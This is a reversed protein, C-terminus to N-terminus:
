PQIRTLKVWIRLAPELRVVCFVNYIYLYALGKYEAYAINRNIFDRTLNSFIIWLHSQRLKFAYKVFKVLAFNYTMIEQYLKFPRLRYGSLM